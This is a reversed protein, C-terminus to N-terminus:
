TAAIACPGSNEEKAGSSGATAMAMRSGPLIRAQGPGFPTPATLMDQRQQPTLLEGAAPADDWRILDDATVLCRRGWVRPAWTSHRYQSAVGTIM